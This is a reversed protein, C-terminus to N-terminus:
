LTYHSVTSVASQFPLLINEPQNPHCSEFRRM